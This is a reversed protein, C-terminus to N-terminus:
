ISAREVFSDNCDLAALADLQGEDPINGDVDSMADMDDSDIATDADADRNGDRDDVLYLVETEDEDDSDSLLEEELSDYTCINNNIEDLNLRDTACTAFSLIPLQLPKYM